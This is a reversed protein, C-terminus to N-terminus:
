WRLAALSSATLQPSMLRSLVNLKEVQSQRLHLHTRLCFAKDPSAFYIALSLTLHGSILRLTMCGAIFPAVLRSCHRGWVPLNTCKDSIFIHRFHWWLRCFIDMLNINRGSYFPWVAEM